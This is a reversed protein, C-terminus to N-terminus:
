FINEQWRQHMEGGIWWKNGPKVRMHWWQYASNRTYYEKTIGVKNAMEFGCGQTTVFTGGQERWGRGVRVLVAKLLLCTCM